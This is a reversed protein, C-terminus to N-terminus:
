SMYTSSVFALVCEGRLFDARTNRSGGVDTTTTLSLSHITPAHVISLMLWTSAGGATLSMNRLRPLYILKSPHSSGLILAIKATSFLKAHAHFNLAELGTCERVFFVFDVPM